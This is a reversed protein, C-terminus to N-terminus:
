QNQSANINGRHEGDKTGAQRISAIQDQILHGLVAVAERAHPLDGKRRYASALLSYVAPDQGDIARGAELQAIADDLRDDMLYLKALSIRARPYDPHEAISKALADEAERFGPEGRDVGSRILAEGLIALLIYNAKGKSIAERAVRIAATTNGAALDEHAASVYAIDTGPALEAASNFDAVALDFRDLATLFVAREYHLRASQPVNRLGWDAVKLGLENNRADVCADAVFSYLKEDQPTIAVANQLAALAKEPQADAVYAQALLNWVKADGARNQSLPVLVRVALKPQRSGVYCLALNFEAAYEDAVHDRASLLHPIAETFRGQRTLQTGIELEANPDSPAQRPDLRSQPAGSELSPPRASPHGSACTRPTLCLVLLPTSLVAACFRIGARSRRPRHQTTSAVFINPKETMPTKQASGM